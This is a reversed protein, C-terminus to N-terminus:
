ARSGNSQIAIRRGGFKPLVSPVCIFQDDILNKGTIPVVCIASTPSAINSQFCIARRTHPQRFREVYYPRSNRKQIVMEFSQGYM